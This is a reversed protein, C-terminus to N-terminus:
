QATHGRNRLAAQLLSALTRTQQSADFHERFWVSPEAPTSPMLLFRQLKQDTEEDSDSPHLCEHAVGSKSLIREVPSGKVTLALIPRGVQIYEFLKGPVQLSRGSQNLDVLLLYDARAMEAEAQQQPLFNETYEVCGLKRLREFGSERIWPQDLEISGILRIRLDSARLLGNGILREVAKMLIGPHRGGYLSGVHAMNKCDRTSIPAAKLAYAPDYGNWILHIKSSSAPYHQRLASQATDTNAIVADAQAIVMRELTWDFARARLSDHFPNGRIPDRCDAVWTIGYRCKLELAAIHTAVPPSTTMLISGPHEVLVEAAAAIAYAAWELECNYPLVYRQVAALIRRTNTWSCRAAVQEPVRRVNNWGELVGVCPASIVEVDFGFNPLYKAFHYPRRAGILNHPPFSHAMIVVRGLQEKSHYSERVSVASNPDTEKLTDM